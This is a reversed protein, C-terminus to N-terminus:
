RLTGAAIRADVVAEVIDWVMWLSDLYPGDLTTGERIQALMERMIENEEYFCGHIADTVRIALRWDKETARILADRSGDLHPNDALIRDLLILFRAGSERNAIIRVM